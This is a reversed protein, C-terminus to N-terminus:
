SCLLCLVDVMRIWFVDILLFWVYLILVEVWVLLFGSFAIDRFHKPLIRFSYMWIKGLEFIISSLKNHQQIKLFFYM